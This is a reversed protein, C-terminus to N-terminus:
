EPSGPRSEEDDEEQPVRDGLLAAWESVRSRNGTM